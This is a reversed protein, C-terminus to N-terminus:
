RETAGSRRGISGLDALRRDAQTVLVENGIALAEKRARELLDRAQAVRVDSREPTAYKLTEDAKVILAFIAQADM